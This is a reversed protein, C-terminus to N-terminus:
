LDFLVSNNSISSNQFDFQTTEFLISFRVSNYSISGIQCKVTYRFNYKYLVSKNSISM